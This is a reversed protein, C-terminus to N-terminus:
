RSIRLVKIALVAVRQRRLRSDSQAGPGCMILHCSKGSGCLVNKQTLLNCPLKSEKIGGQTRRSTSQIRMEM